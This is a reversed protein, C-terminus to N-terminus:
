IGYSIDKYFKKNLNHCIIAMDQYKGKKIQIDDELVEWNKGNLDLSKYQYKRERLPPMKVEQTIIEVM